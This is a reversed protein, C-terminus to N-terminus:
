VDIMVAIHQRYFCIFFFPFQNLLKQCFLFCFQGGFFLFGLVFLSNTRGSGGTPLIYKLRNTRKRSLGAASYAVVHFYLPTCARATWFLLSSTPVLRLPCRSRNGISTRTKSMGCLLEMLILM